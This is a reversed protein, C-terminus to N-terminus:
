LVVKRRVRADAQSAIAWCSSAIPLALVLGGRVSVRKMLGHLLPFLLKIALEYLEGDVDVMIGVRFNIHSGVVDDVMGDVYLLDYTIHSCLEM